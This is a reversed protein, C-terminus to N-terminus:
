GSRRRVRRAGVRRPALRLDAAAGARRGRAAARGRARDGSRAAAAAGPGRRARHAGDAGGARRCRDGLRGGGDAAGRRARGGRGALGRVVVRADRVAARGAGVGADAARGGAGARDGARGGPRGAPQGGGGGPQGARLDGRGAAHLRAARGGPGRDGGGAMPAALARARRALVSGAVPHRRHGARVPRLRGLGGPVPRAAGPRPGRDRPRAPGSAPRRHRARGPRDHGDGRGAAREARDPRDARLRRDRGRGGRAAVARAGPVLPGPGAPVRGGPDPQHRVRRAPPDARDGPVRGPPGPRGRRRRRRGAGAGPGAPRRTPAGGLRSAGAPGRRCGAVVPRAGAIVEAEGSSRLLAALDSDDAPLLRGHLRVTAGLPVRADDADGLVLVPAVLDLTRGRGTVQHVTLRWVVQDGAFSQPGGSVVHPDSAVTGVATVAAGDAALGAVPNHAIRDARLAAVAAATAAVLLLAAVAVVVAGRQRACRWVALWWSRLRSSRRGAGAPPWRAWWRVSGRPRASCRCGCTSAAPSLLTPM